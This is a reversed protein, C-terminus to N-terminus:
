VNESRARRNHAEIMISAERTVGKRTLYDWLEAVTMDPKETAFAFLATNVASAYDFVRRKENADLHDMAHSQYTM